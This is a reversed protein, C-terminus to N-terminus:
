RAGRGSLVAYVTRLIIQIDLWVSWNQVYYMDLKRREEFSINRRGSIQALGTLGSKVSLILSKFEYGEIESPVLARPGVLSIDGKLVNILQPLEDLSTKRMFHGLRSVRPDNELQDGGSRYLKSLEPKGMKQFAKEPSLNNYAPKMTRFKYIYIPKKFRSLRKQKFFIPQLPNTAKSVLVIIIFIPSTIVLGIVSGLIDMIRKIIRGYGILPTTHVQIAPFAGLLDISHRSTLLANHEPVFRYDLHHEIAHGYVKAVDKSDTQIISHPKTAEIASTLSRFALPRLDEYISDKNAVVGVVEMGSNINGSLYRSIFYTSDSSGVLLVRTVGYHHRYLYLRVMRLITRFMWSIFFALVAAYIPVLKAPFITDNSFFDYAVFLLVGVFSAVLLRWLEAPKREYTRPSYLGLLYFAGLWLPLMLLILTIFTAAEVPEPVPRPDLTVRLIYALTFATLLSIVDSVALLIKYVLNFNQKM